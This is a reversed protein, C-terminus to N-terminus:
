RSVEIVEFPIIGAPVEIEVKDGVQKGLLGKAIPSDVSIKGQKM